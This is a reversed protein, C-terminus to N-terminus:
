QTDAHIPNKQPGVPIWLIVWLILDSLQDTLTEKRKVELTEAINQLYEVFTCFAETGM